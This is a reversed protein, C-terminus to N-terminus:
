LNEKLDEKIESKLKIYKEIQREINEIKSKIIEKDYCIEKQNLIEKIKEDIDNVVNRFNNLLEVVVQELKEKQFSKSSCSKNKLYTKCYYYTHYKSKRIIMSNGCENCRLHGSFIDYTNKKNVRINRSYLLEQM